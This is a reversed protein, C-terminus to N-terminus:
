GGVVAGVALGLVVGLETAAGLGDGDLGHRAHRVALAAALGLLVGGGAAIPPVSSGTLAAALGAVALALGIAVAVDVGGIREAFWQGFGPDTAIRRREAAGVPVPVLRSAAVVAVVTAAAVLPGDSATLSALATIEATVVLILAVVGGSGIRPDRRAAEARLADPAMLADTTDALGDLHLGGSVVAVVTLAAIAALVPEGTGLVLVPVAALGGLAAGVVPFLAAGAGAPPAEGVRGAVPLRTLIATAARLQGALGTV